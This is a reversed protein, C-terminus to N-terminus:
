AAAIDEAGATAAVATPATAETTQNATATVPAVESVKARGCYYSNYTVQFTTERFRGHLYMYQALGRLTWGAIDNTFRGRPRGLDELLIEVEGFEFEVKGDEIPDGAGEAALIEQGTIVCM